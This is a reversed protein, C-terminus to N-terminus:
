TPEANPQHTRITDQVAPIKEAPFEFRRLIDPSATIAYVVNDWHALAEPQEPRHGIFVGLDHLWAAAYVVDDDYQMGGGVRQTLAYLRPQHGCKDVPKAQSAIYGAILQRYDSLALAGGEELARRRAGPSRREDPDRRAVTAHVRGGEMQSDCRHGDQLR